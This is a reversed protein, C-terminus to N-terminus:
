EFLSCFDQLKNPSNCINLFVHQLIIKWFNMEIFFDFHGCLGMQPQTKQWQQNMQNHNCMFADLFFVLVNDDHM